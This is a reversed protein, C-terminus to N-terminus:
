LALEDHVDNKGFLECGCEGSSDLVKQDATEHTKESAVVAAIGAENARLSIGLGLLLSLSRFIVQQLTRGAM